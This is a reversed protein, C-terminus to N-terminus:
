PGSACFADPSTVAIDDEATDAITALTPQDLCVPCAGLGSALVDFAARCHDACGAEDFGARVAVTADCRRICHVMRTLGSAASVECHLEDRTPAAACFVATLSDIFRSSTQADLVGQGIDDLCPPCGGAALIRSTAKEFRATCSHPSYYFCDVFPKFEGGFRAKVERVRCAATCSTLRSLNHAVAAACGAESETFAAAVGPPRATAVVLALSYVTLVRKFLACM